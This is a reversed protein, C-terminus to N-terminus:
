DRRAQYHFAVARLADTAVDATPSFRM